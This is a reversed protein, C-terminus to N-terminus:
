WSLSNGLSTTPHRHAIPHHIAIPRLRLRVPLRGLQSGQQLVLTPVIGAMTPVVMYPAAFRLVVYPGRVAAGGYPGRVATGGMPGRYAAGGRPGAVAGWGFADSASLALLGSLSIITFAKM